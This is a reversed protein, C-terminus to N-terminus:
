LRGLEVRDKNLYRWFPLNWYIPDLQTIGLLYHNLGSCSSGRGAGVLSGCEWILDIYYKLTLPYNFMNTHLQQGVYRKIDAEYELRDWYEQKSAFGERYMAAACENVWARESNDDSDFMQNLTPCNKFNTQKKPYNGIPVKPITQPHTLDYISIKDYIEMSNHYMEDIYSPMYSPALNEYIEQEDQLYAYEYFTDVERDGGKSNLYAKHVYRDDRKLYHADTGIVMKINYIKAIEVLKKNVLVQDKNQAPACEIYFDEGFLDTMYSIFNVIKNYNLISEKQDGVKRALEMALISSSVEGGLCASTAILHGPEQHVVYALEEKLTPVREMGRDYYSLMWSRSSLRRLQKHGIKDKAILILHYYKIGSERTDTLYIENGLGIKFNPHEQIIEQQYKNFFIHSALVEHDTISIGTLGIQIARKILDKPKCICDLLRINSYATHSHVEFRDM